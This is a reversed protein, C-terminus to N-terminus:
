NCTYAQTRESCSSCTVHCCWHFKCHCQWTHIYQFTKYGRGCCLIECSDSLTSTRNCLRGQTGMSGTTNDRECFNPSHDVYVLDKEGPKSYGQPNKLKLFAPLMQRRGKMAEVMVAQEYRDKLAYGVERFNPLTEWCTKLTCSGSVGHCKCELRVNKELIKRGVMNNHLNMLTRVSRKVERADVFERSLRIGHKIDASCGGWRWGKEPDHYGHKERDCGCYTLNGHSCANTIAHAIGASLIAYFFAAERSGVKLEQGFLSPEGLSSCNWRSRQFQYRCEENGMRAGTGIAIIADPRAQCITRQRSSLGPMKSCIISAGLALVSSVGGEGCLMLGICLVTHCLDLGRLKLRM